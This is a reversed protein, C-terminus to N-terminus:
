ASRLIAIHRREEIRAVAAGVTSQYGYGVLLIRQVLQATIADNDIGSGDIDDIVRSGDNFQDIQKLYM